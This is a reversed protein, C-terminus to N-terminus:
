LKQNAMMEGRYNVVVFFGFTGSVLEHHSVYTKAGLVTSTWHVHRNIYMVFIVVFNINNVHKTHINADRGINNNKARWLINVISNLEYAM